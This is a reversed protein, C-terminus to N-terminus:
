DEGFYDFQNLAEWNEDMAYELIQAASQYAQGLAYVKNSEYYNARDVLIKFAQLICKDKNSLKENM